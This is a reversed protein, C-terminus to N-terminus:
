LVMRLYGGRKTILSGYHSLAVTLSILPRSTMGAASGHRAPFLLHQRAAVACLAQSDPPGSSISRVNVDAEHHWRLPRVM